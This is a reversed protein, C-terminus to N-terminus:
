VYSYRDVYKILKSNFIFKRLDKSCNTDIKLINDPIISAAPASKAIGNPPTGLAVAIILIIYATINSM